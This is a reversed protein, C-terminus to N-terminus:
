TRSGMRSAGVAGNPNSHPVKAVQRPLARWILWGSVLLVLAIGNFTLDYPLLDQIGERVPHLQLIKHQVIGDYLNFGGMGFLTGSILAQGHGSRIVDRQRWLRLAGISLMTATALHFIGDIFIRWFQSTHVYLNHWQLLQHLV